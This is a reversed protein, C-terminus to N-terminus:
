KGSGKDVVSKLFILVLVTVVGLTGFSQLYIVMDRKLSPMNETPEAVPVENVEAETSETKPEPKEVMKVQEPLEPEGPVKRPMPIEASVTEQIIEVKESRTTFEKVDLVMFPRDRLM